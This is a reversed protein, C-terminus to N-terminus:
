VQAKQIYSKIKEILHPADNCVITITDLIRKDKLDRVLGGFSEELFSTAFGYCGDLNIELKENNKLAELYKPKLIKVRFEEGSYAGESISRGGPTRTYDQAISIKIVNMGGSHLGIFKGIFFPVLFTM